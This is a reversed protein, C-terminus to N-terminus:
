KSEEIITLIVKTNKRLERKILSSTSPCLRIKTKKKHVILFVTVPIGDWNKKTKKAIDEGIKKPSLGLPGIKPALSAAPTVEGGITKILIKLKKVQNSM